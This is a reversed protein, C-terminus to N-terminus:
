WSLRNAHKAELGNSNNANQSSSHSPFVITSYESTNEESFNLISVRSVYMKFYALLHGVSFHHVSVQKSHTEILYMRARRHYSNIIISSNISLPVLFIERVNVTWVRLWQFWIVVEKKIKWIINLMNIGSLPFYSKKNQKKTEKDRDRTKMERNVSRMFYFWYKHAICTYFKIWCKFKYGIGLWKHILSTWWPTNTSVNKDM